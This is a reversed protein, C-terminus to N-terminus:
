LVTTQLWITDLNLCVSSNESFPMQQFGSCSRLTCIKDLSKPKCTSTQMDPKSCVSRPQLKCLVITSRPMLSCRLTVAVFADVTVHPQAPSYAAAAAAISSGPTARSLLASLAKRSMIHTVRPLVHHESVVAQLRTLM